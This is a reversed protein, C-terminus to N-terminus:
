RRIEVVNGEDDEVWELKPAFSRAGTPPKPAARSVIPPCEPSHHWGGGPSKGIDAGVPFGGGCDMCTGDFRAKM